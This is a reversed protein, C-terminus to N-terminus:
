ELKRLNAHERDLKRYTGQDASTEPLALLHEVERLRLLIKEVNEKAIMTCLPLSTRLVSIRLPFLFIRGRRSRM